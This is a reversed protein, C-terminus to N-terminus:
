GRSGGNTKSTAESRNIAAKTKRSPRSKQKQLIAGLEAHITKMGELVFPYRLLITPYDRVATLLKGFDRLRSFFRKTQTQNRQRRAQDPRRELDKFDRIDEPDLWYDNIGDLNRDSAVPVDLGNKITSAVSHISSNEPAIGLRECNHRNVVGGDLMEALMRGAQNKQSEPAFFISRDPDDLKSASIKNLDLREDM